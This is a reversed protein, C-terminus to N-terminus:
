SLFRQDILTKASINIRGWRARIATILWDVLAVVLASVYTSQFWIDFMAYTVVYLILLHHEIGLLLTRTFEGRTDAAIPNVADSGSRVHPPM